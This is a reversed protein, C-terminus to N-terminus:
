KTPGPESFRVILDMIHKLNPTLEIHHRLQHFVTSMVCREAIQMPVGKAATSLELMTGNGSEFPFMSIGWLPGLIQVSKALHLLLHTNFTCVCTSYLEFSEYVFKRLLRSATTIDDNTVRLQLLLREGETLLSAHVLYVTPLVGYLCPLMFYLLRNRYESAKWFVRESIPRVLKVFSIPPAIASLRQDAKATHNGTYFPPGLRSFWLDTLAKVVGLLCCHMYDPLIGWVLNLTNLKVLASPGKFGDTAQDRQRAILMAKLVLDHTREVLHQGQTLIYRM